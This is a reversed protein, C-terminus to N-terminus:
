STRSTGNTPSDHSSHLGPQRLFVADLIERHHFRRHDALRQSLDPWLFGADARYARADLAFTFTHDEVHWSFEPRVEYDRSGLDRFGDSRSFTTDLRYNLGNITTPGTIYNSNTVTGFSGAQVSSGFPVGAVSRLPRYQHHRRAPRQRVAGLGPRGSNRDAARWEALAVLGGLQDGDSFGDTYVQANLGRILFHDFYGLSDQGGCNIGSANNIADRLLTGGQETVVERPIIQVSAPIDALKTGTKGLSPAQQLPPGSNNNNPGNGDDAVAPPRRRRNQRRTPAVTRRRVTPKATASTQKQAARKKPADVQVPPLPTTSEQAQALAPVLASLAICFFGAYRYAHDRRHITIAPGKVSVETKM